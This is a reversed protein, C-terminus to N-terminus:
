ARRERDRQRLWALAQRVRAGDLEHVEATKGVDALLIVTLAGGMHERFEELGGLVAPTGTGDALELAPHWLRFGLRELLGCLTELVSEGLLGTLVAYRADLAM